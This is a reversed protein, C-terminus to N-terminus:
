LFQTKMSALAGVSVNPKRNNAKSLHLLVYRRWRWNSFFGNQLIAFVFLNLM